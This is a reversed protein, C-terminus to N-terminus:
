GPRGPERVRDAEHTCPVMKDYFGTSPKRAQPDPLTRLFGSPGTACRHAAPRRRTQVTKASKGRRMPAPPAPPSCLHHSLEAGLARVILAKKLAMTTANTQNGDEAKKWTNHTAESIGIQRCVDVVPTGGDAMQLAYAIQEESFRSQKM